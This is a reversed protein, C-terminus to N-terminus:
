PTFADYPRNIPLVVTFTTGVGVDSRFSIEGCCLDVAKKVITLGLGIGNTDQVNDGRFFPEFLYQQNQQPIGIGEDRIRFVVKNSISYVELYVTSAEDSYKLANSLLNKLIQQVLRVNLCISQQQYNCTLQINRQTPSLQQLEWIISQCFPEIEVVSLTFVKHENEYSFLEVSELMQKAIAIASRMKEHLQQRQELAQPSRELQAIALSLSNLPTRIDHCINRLLNTKFKHLKQESALKKLTTENEEFNRMDKFIWLFVSRRQHRVPFVSVTVPFSAGEQSKLHMTWRHLQPLLQLSNLQNRFTTFDQDAVFLRFPKGILAPKSSNLLKAGVTNIEQIITRENSLLCGDSSFEFLARYRQHELQAKHRTVQLEERYDVLREASGRLESLTGALEAIALELLHRSSNSTDSAYQQILDLRQQALILQQYHDATNM